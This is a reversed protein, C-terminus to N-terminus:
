INPRAPAVGATGAARHRMRRRAWDIANDQALTWQQDKFKDDHIILIPREKSSESM